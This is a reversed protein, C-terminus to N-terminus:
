KPLTLGFYPFQLFGMYIYIQNSFPRNSATVLGNLDFEGKTELEDTKKPQGLNKLRKETDMSDFKDVLEMFSLKEFDDIQALNGYFKDLRDLDFLHSDYYAIFRKM